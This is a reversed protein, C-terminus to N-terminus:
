YRKLQMWRVIINGCLFFAAFSFRNTGIARCIEFYDECQQCFYYYDIYLKSYYVEPGKTKFLRKCEKRPQSPGQNSELYAKMFWKLLKNISPPASAPTSALIPAQSITPSTTPINSSETSARLLGRTLENESGLPPNYRPSRCTRPGTM